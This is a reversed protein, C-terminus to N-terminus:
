RRWYLGEIRDHLDETIESVSSTRSVQFPRGINVEINKRFWGATIPRFSVPMIEVNTERALTAAGKKFPAVGGYPNIKGEPYIVINGGEGIIERAKALNRDLGLGPVVTFVGFLSYVFDIIGLSALIKLFRWDFSRVAMFRLPLHPTWPGLILRFLFSHYFDVHNAVILFPRDVKDFNERGRVTIKFTFLFLVYVLPWVLFQSWKAFGNVLRERSWTRSPLAIEFDDIVSDTM